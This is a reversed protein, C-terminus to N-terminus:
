RWDCVHFGFLRKQQGALEIEDALDPDWWVHYVDVAVGLMPHDLREWIARADAMRNICSRDAAYMPHLPEISLQVGVSEAHPLCAAIADAVQKRAETLPMGPVAGVVLVVQGAGLAAAEDLCRKNQDISAARDAPDFAPFFGGRVYASVKLAHDRVIRVAEDLGVGREEPVVVDRWISIGGIGARSYQECCEALNWPKNTITHIACHSLDSSMSQIM